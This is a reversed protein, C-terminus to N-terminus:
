ISKVKMLSNYRFLINNTWLDGHNLCYFDNEEYEFLKNVNDIFSPGLKRLKKSFYGFEKWESVKTEFASYM